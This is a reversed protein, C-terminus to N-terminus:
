TYVTERVNDEAFRSDLDVPRVALEGPVGPM